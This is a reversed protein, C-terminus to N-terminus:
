SWGPPKIEVKGAFPPALYSGGNRNEPRWATAPALRPFETARKFKEL